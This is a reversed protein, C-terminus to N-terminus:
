LIFYVILSSNEGSNFYYNKNKLLEPYLLVKLSDDSQISIYINDTSTFNVYFRYEKNKEVNVQYLIGSVSNNNPSEVRLINKKVIINKGNYYTRKNVELFHTRVDGYNNYKAVNM